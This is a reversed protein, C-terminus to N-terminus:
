ARGLDIPRHDIETKGHARKLQDVHRSKIDQFLGVGNHLPRKRVM